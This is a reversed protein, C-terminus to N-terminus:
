RVGYNLTLLTAYKLVVIVRDSTFQFTM